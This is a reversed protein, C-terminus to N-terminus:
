SHVSLAEIILRLKQDIHARYSGKIRRLRDREALCLAGARVLDFERDKPKWLSAEWPWGVPSGDAKLTLPSDGEVRTAHSYYLVAARLLEGSAHGDDHELKWGEILIQRQREAHIKQVPTMLAAANAKRRAYDHHDLTTAMIKESEETLFTDTKLIPWLM